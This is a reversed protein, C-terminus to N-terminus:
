RRDDIANGPLICTPDLDALHVYEIVRVQRNAIPNGGDRLDEKELVIIAGDLLQEASLGFLLERLHQIAQQCASGPSFAHGVEQRSVLHERLALNHRFRDATDLAAAARVVTRDSYVDARMRPLALRDVVTM